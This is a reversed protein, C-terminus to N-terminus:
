RALLWALAIRVREPSGASAQALQDLLEGTMAGRGRREALRLLAASAVEPAADRQLRALAAEDSSTMAVARRVPIAADDIASALADGARDGLAVLAAGRVEPDRDRALQRLEAESATPIAALRVEPAPDDAAHVPHAPDLLALAAIAHARTMRDRDRTLDRLLKLTAASPHARDERGAAEACSMRVTADADRMGREIWAIATEPAAAPLAACVAARTAADGKSSWAALKSSLAPVPAVALARLAIPNPEGDLVTRLARAADDGRGIASLAAVRAVAIPRRQAIDDSLDALLLPTAERDGLAAVADIAAARVDPDTLKGLSARIIPALEHLKAKGAGEIAARRSATTPSALAERLAAIMVHEAAAIRDPNSAPAAAVRKAARVLENRDILSDAVALLPLEVTVVKATGAGAQRRDRAFQWRVHVLEDDSVLDRPPPPLPSVDALVDTVATDFDGNGSTAVQKRSIIRGKADIGLEFTAALGPTNLPHRAPLRLRCDELFGSWRPQLQAAIQALYDAGRATPDASPPPPLRPGSPALPSSTGHSACGAVVLLAFAFRRTM